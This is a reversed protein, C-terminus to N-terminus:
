GKLKIVLGDGVYRYKHQFEDPRALYYEHDCQTFSSYLPHPSWDCKALNSLFRQQFKEADTLRRIPMGVRSLTFGFPELRTEVVSILKRLAM